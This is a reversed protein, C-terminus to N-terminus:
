PRVSAWAFSNKLCGVVIRRLTVPEAWFTPKAEITKPRRTTPSSRQIGTRVRAVGRLGAGRRAEGKASASSPRSRASRRMTVGSADRHLTSLGPDVVQM